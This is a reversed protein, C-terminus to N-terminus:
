NKNKIFNPKPLDLDMLNQDFTKNFFIFKQIATKTNKESIKTNQFIPTKFNPTVYQTTTEQNQILMEFDRKIQTQLKTM